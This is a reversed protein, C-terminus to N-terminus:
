CVGSVVSLYFGGDELRDLHFSFIPRDIGEFHQLKRAILEDILQRCALRDHISARQIAEDIASDVFAERRYAPQLAANWAVIAVSLIGALTEYDETSDTWPEVFDELVTSMKLRAAPGRPAFIGPFSPFDALGQDAPQRRQRRRAAEQKRRRKRELKRQKELQKPASM